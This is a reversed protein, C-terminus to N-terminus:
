CMRLLPKQGAEGAPPYNQKSEAVAREQCRRACFSVRLLYGLFGAPLAAGDIMAM